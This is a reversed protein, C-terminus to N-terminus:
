DLPNLPHILNNDIVYKNYAKAADLATDHYKLYKRKGGVVVYAIWKQAANNFSVGRYGSTNNVQILRTNIAQTTNDAWRCNEKYYGDENNVRDLSLEEVFSDEMDEYFNHADYWRACVKIGRGGYSDWRSHNRNTCRAMM